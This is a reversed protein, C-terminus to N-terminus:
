RDGCQLLVLCEPGLKQLAHEFHIHYTLSTAPGDTDDSRDLFGFGSLLDQIAEAERSVAVSQVPESSLARFRCDECSGGDSGSM